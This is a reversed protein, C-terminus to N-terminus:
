VTYYLTPSYKHAFNRINTISRKNGGLNSILLVAQSACYIYHDKISEATPRETNEKMTTHTILVSTEYKDQISKFIDFTESIKLYRPKRTTFFNKMFDNLSDIVILSVGNEKIITILDNVSFDYTLSDNIEDYLFSLNDAERSSWGELASSIIISNCEHGIYLCKINEKVFVPLITKFLLATTEISDIGGLLTITHSEFSHKLTFTSEEPLIFIREPFRDQVGKLVNAPM